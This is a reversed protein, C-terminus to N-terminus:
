LIIKTNLKVNLKVALFAGLPISQLENIGNSPNPTNFSAEVMVKKIKNIDKLAAENLIFDVKSKKKYLGDINDIAGMLSSSIQSNAVVTHLIVNTSDMLYLVADCSLPFSNTANLSIVGSEVHTKSLDQELNLDFTDKLTLGNTSLALPLQAKVKLKIKSFPFIEDNGGSTNGWPNLQLKYGITQNSGLNELYNKINSNNEDFNLQQTSPQF